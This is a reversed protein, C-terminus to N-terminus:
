WVIRVGANGRVIQRDQNGSVDTTYDVMGWLGVYQTLQAVVGGGVELATTRFSTGVVETTSFIAKDTGVADQWLNAKLYPRVNPMGFLGDSSLRVGVRAYLADPTDYGISSLPDSGTMHLYQYILQAQPEITFSGFRIPVGGELSAAFSTGKVDINTNNAFSRGNGTYRTGVVRAELYEDRPGVRTWYAGGSLGSLSSDGIYNNQIGLAFGRVEGRAEAYGMFVGFRDKFGAPTESEFLDVGSQFGYARGKFSPSLLGGHGQEIAEGFVRGWARGPAGNGRMLGQDGNYDHFTGIANRTLERALSPMSAFMAGEPRYIPIPPNPGNQLHSRLFWSNQADPTGGSDPGRFLQYQYLGAFVPNGLTFASSQTTAGGTAVIIPIGTGSTMGGTGNVNNVVVDTNGTASAGAGSLVLQSTPSTNGGLVSNITLRGGSGTYAGTLTLAGSPGGDGPMVNGMNTVSGSLTGIGGLTGNANVAIPSATIAGDVQLTGANINTAGSYTNTATLVTTGGGNQAVGGVGSIAGGFNYTNSRNFALTATAGTINVDGTISGSGGNNGLQLTGASITTGGAYNSDGTLTTTGSGAQIVGGSGIIVNGIMLAGTNSFQLTSNNTVEGSGLAGGDGVALIGATITTGGSYTNAGTLTTTGTGSQTVVGSGSIVNAIGLAGTNSFQLISNNNVGGTGLAGGDGVALTGASITTGGSYTNAGTLTTTGAGAQTVVGSGGIVNAIGLAGSNAFQLISNNTVGGTGLTGGDGVALTGASIITGGSYTNNGTLLLTGAGLKTLEDTGSGTGGLVQSVTFTNAAAAIDFGGGAAGWTVTRASPISTYSTGTVQLIGGDFTLGGTAAGLNNDAKVSLVGADIVTGGTYTNAGGLVLTGLGRKVLRGPAAADTLVSTITTTIAEDGPNNIGVAILTNGNADPVLGISGQEVTYGNVAFSMGSVNIPGLSPDVTVTGGTGMFVASSSDTFGGNPTGTATTWNTTGAAAQWTGIGGRGGPVNGPTINSGDWYNYTGVPVNLVMNLGTGTTQLAYGSPGAFNLSSATGSMTAAQVLGYIQQDFTVAPDSTVNVNTGANLTATGGVQVQLVDTDGSTPSRQYFYNLNGGNQVTLDGNITVKNGGSANLDQSLLTGGNVLVSGGITGSTATGGEGGALTAGSAVTVLGTAGSQDGNIVLTGANVNTPGAYTNAGSLTQTGASLTVGGTGSIIGQFDQNQGNSIVLTKTGLLVSGNSTGALSQIASSTATVGSIDFTATTGCPNNVGGPTCGVTVSGANALSGDASLALTGNMISWPATVGAGLAGTATWTGLGTKQYQDFGQYQENGNTNDLTSVILGLNFNAGTPATGGLRLVNGANGTGSAVVKGLMTYGALLELTNNNGTFKVAVGGPATVSLDGTFFGGEIEGSNIITNGNGEVFLGIALPAAGAVGAAGASAGPNIVGTNTLTNNHGVIRAADGGSGNAIGGLGVEGYGGGVNISNSITASSTSIVLGAGGSGGSQGGYGGAITGQNDLTTGQFFVGVGGGGGASGSSGDGGAGGIIGGGGAGGTATNTLTGGTFVLGGGGGGGGGQGSPGTGGQGGIGGQINDVNNMTVSNVMGAGGDGGGGGYGAGGSQGAVGNGGTNDGTQGGCGAGGPCTANGTGAGGATTSGASGSIPGSGGGAGGGDSSGGAGGTGSPATAGAGGGNSVQAFADPIGIAMVGGAILVVAGSALLRRKLDKALEANRSAIM